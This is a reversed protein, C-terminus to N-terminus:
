AAAAAATPAARTRAAPPRSVPSVSRPVARPGPGTGMLVASPLSAAAGRAAAGPSGPGQQPRRRRQGRRRVARLTGMGPRGTAAPKSSTTGRASAAPGARPPPEAPPSRTGSPGRDGRAGEEASPLGAAHAEEGPAPAPLAATATPHASSVEPSPLEEMRNQPLKKLVVKDADKGFIGERTINGIQYNKSSMRLKVNLSVPDFTPPIEASATRTTEVAAHPTHIRPPPEWTIPQNQSSGESKWPPDARTHAAMLPVATSAAAPRATPETKQAPLLATNGHAGGPHELQGSTTVSPSLPTEPSHPSLSSALSNMTLSTSIHDTTPRVGPVAAARGTTSGPSGLNHRHENLRPMRDPRIIRRRVSVKRRRGHQQRAQPTHTTVDGFLQVQRHTINASGLLKPPILKQTSHLYIYGPEKIAENGTVVSVQPDSKTVTKDISEAFVLLKEASKVPAVHKSTAAASVMPTVSVVRLYQSNSEESSVLRHGANFVTSTRSAGYSVTSQETANVPIQSLDSREQSKPNTVTPELYTQPRRNGPSVSQPAPSAPPTAADAARLSTKRAPTSRTAMPLAATATNEMAEGLPSVSPTKTALIMPELEPSTPDGSAEEEESVKSSKLAQISLNTPVTTQKETLTLNRRTKELLAAWRQPDARRASSLFQRRHGRLRRSAKDRHRRYSTKGYSNRTSASQSTQEGAAPTTPERPATGPATALSALANKWRTFPALVVNGSGEEVEGQGVAVHNKQPTTEDRKVHVQFVLLDVGYQNAAVCRFYGRDQKTVSQIKLTGNEFIHKNRVSDHLIVREPLVWSISAHPVATSPCPLHLVGGIFTSLQAGNVQPHEEYPDVVTIRFTLIDADAVNTGICHYLGTDFSDATRLTLTGTKVVIIRGDE